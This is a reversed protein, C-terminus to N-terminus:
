LVTKWENCLKMKGVDCYTCAFKEPTTNQSHDKFTMDENLMDKLTQTFTERFQKSKRPGIAPRFEQVRKQMSAFDANVPVRRKLIFYEVNIKEVPINFQKSFFERYLAVQAIKKDDKKQYDKWGSTSTKIDMITWTDALPSYFVLDVLGKFMVGPTIEQYLLTEVGALEMTKTSFYGARNKKLYDLIHKGDLYFEQLVKANIGPDLTGKAQARAVKFAQVMKAYLLSNLDMENAKKVQDHFLVELWEQITEHMASGFITHISSTFPVLKNNYQYHWM